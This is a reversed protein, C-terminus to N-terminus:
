GLQRCLDILTDIDSDALAATLSLRVRATGEPVTPHRIPTVWLGAHRFSQAMALAAHNSGAHLPIIHSPPSNTKKLADIASADLTRSLADALRAAHKALRTRDDHLSPLLRLIHETWLLNVPPLATSFILPRMKNILLSRTDADTLIGAGVSSIAKGFTTVLIDCQELIDLASCLGAGHSGMLGFSHAEDVYLSFGYKQKLHVIELLPAQDGDMSFVSETVVWVRKHQSSYKRLLSELHELSNHAFRLTRASSLKLGEILSAHVLKDALILDDKDTLAPLIGSNAAYGSSLILASKGPFLDSLAIELSDYHPSNGTMLRSSPNALLHDGGHALLPILTNHLFAGSIDSRGGLGLYDNSSYNLYRVGEHVIYKGQAKLTTLRRLNDSRRLTDLQERISDTDM